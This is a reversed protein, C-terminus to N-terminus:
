LDLSRTGKHVNQKVTSKLEHNPSNPNKMSKGSLSKSCVENHRLLDQSTRKIRQKCKQCSIFEEMDEAPKRAEPSGDILGNNVAKIEM